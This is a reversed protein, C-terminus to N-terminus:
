LEQVRTWDPSGVPYTVYDDSMHTFDPAEFRYCWTGDPWEHIDEESTEQIQM